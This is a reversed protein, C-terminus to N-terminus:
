RLKEHTTLHGRHEARLGNPALMSVEFDVADDWQTPLPRGLDVTAQGSGHALLVVENPHYPGQPDIAGGFDASLTAVGKELGSLEFTVREIYQVQGRIVFRRVEWKAHKGIPEVPFPVALRSILGKAVEMAMASRMEVQQHGAAYREDVPGPRLALTLPAGRADVPVPGGVGELATLVQQMAPDVFGGDPVEQTSAALFSIVYGTPLPTTKAPTKLIPFVRKGKNNPTDISWWGGAEIDFTATGGDGLYTYRVKARPEDGPELLKVEPSKFPRPPAMQAWASGAAFLVLLTLRLTARM